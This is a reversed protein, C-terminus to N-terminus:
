ANGAVTTLALVELEVRAVALAIALADDHGPDCDLIIPITAM